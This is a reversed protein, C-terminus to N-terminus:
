SLMNAHAKYEKITPVRLHAHDIRVYIDLDKELRIGSSGENEISVILAWEDKYPGDQEIVVPTFPEFM